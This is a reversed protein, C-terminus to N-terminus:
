CIARFYLATRGSVRIAQPVLVIKEASPDRYARHPFNRGSKFASENFRETLSLGGDVERRSGFGAQFADTIRLKEFSRCLVAPNQHRQGILNM